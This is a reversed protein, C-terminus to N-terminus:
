KALGIAVVNSKFNSKWAWNWSQVLNWHQFAIIVSNVGHWYRVTKLSPWFWELQEKYFQNMRGDILGFYSQLCIKRPNVQITCTLETNQEPYQTWIRLTSPRFKKGKREHKFEEYFVSYQKFGMRLCNPSRLIEWLVSPGPSSKTPGWVRKVHPNVNRISAFM